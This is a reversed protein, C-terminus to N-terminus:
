VQGCCAGSPPAGILVSQVLATKDPASSRTQPHEAGAGCTQAGPLVLDQAQGLPPLPVWVQLEYPSAKSSQLQQPAAVVQVAQTVSRPEFKASQLNQGTLLVQTM